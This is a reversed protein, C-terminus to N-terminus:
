EEDNLDDIGADQRQLIPIEEYKMASNSSFVSLYKMQKILSLGKM